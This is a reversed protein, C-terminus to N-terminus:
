RRVMGNLEGLIDSEEIESDDDVQVTPLIPQTTQVYEHYNRSMLKDVLKQVQRSWYVMQFVNLGVLGWIIYEM